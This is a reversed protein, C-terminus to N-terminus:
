AAKLMHKGEVGNEEGRLFDDILDLDHAFEIKDEDSINSKALESKIWMYTMEKSVKGSKAHQILIVLVKPLPMQKKYSRPSLLADTVDALHIIDAMSIGVVDAGVQLAEVSLSENAINERAYNHHMGALKAEVPFGASELIRRSEDEHAMIIEAITDESSFGRKTLDSVEEASLIASVPCVQMPRVEKANLDNKYTNLSFPVGALKSIHARISDAEKGPTSVALSLIDWWNTNSLPNDLISRPIVIKGIDHLLAARLFEEIQINEAIINADLNVASGDPRILTEHIKHSLIELTRICHEATDLHFLRMVTLMEWDKETPNFHAKEIRLYFEEKTREVCGELLKKDSLEKVISEYAGSETIDRAEEESSVKGSILDDEEPSEQHTM